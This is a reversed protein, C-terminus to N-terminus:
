STKRSHSQSDPTLFSQFCSLLHCSHASCWQCASAMSYHYALLHLYNEPIECYRYRSFWTFMDFHVQVFAFTVIHQYGHYATQFFNPAFFIPKERSLQVAEHYYNLGMALLHQSLAYSDQCTRSMKGGSEGLRLSLYLSQLTSGWSGTIAGFSAVFVQYSELM